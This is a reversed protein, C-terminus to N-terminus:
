PPCATCTLTTADCSTGPACATANCSGGAGAGAVCANNFCTGVACILFEPVGPYPACPLGPRGAALCVGSADCVTWPVCSSPADACSQGLARRGACTGQLCFETGVCDADVRCQGAPVQPVCTGSSTGAVGLPVSCSYPFECAVTDAGGCPNGGQKGHVCTGDVCTLDTACFPIDLCPTAGGCYLGCAENEIAARVCIEGCTGGEILLCASYTGCVGTDQCHQGDAVLGHLIKYFCNSMAQDCPGDYEAVCADWNQPRYEAQHEAVHRDYAACDDQSTAYAQWDALAGGLCRASRRASAAHLEQCAASATAPANSKASSGCGGLTLGLAVAAAAGIWSSAASM